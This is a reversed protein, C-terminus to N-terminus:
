RTKAVPVVDDAAGQYVLSFDSLSNLAQEYDSDETLQYANIGCRKMYYLQDRLVDGVARIEGDFGYRERLLRAHSYCRGDKYLPFSLTIMTFSDLDDALDEILDDGELCVSLQGTHSLFQDRNASWYKYPVIVDEDNKISAEAPDTILKWNDELIEMNKIVRM